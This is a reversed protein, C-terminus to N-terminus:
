KKKRWKYPEIFSGRWMGLKNNAAFIEDNVFDNTFYRYAVAWGSKVMEKNLNLDDAFCVAVIRKFRDIDTQKCNIKKGVILSELYNKSKLGCKYKKKNIECKQNIEPADIGYLRYKVREIYITDGDIIKVKEEDKQKDKKTIDSLYCILQFGGTKYYASKKGCKKGNSMVSYPCPCKGPYRSISDQIIEEPSKSYTKDFKFIIIIVFLSYLYVKLHLTNLNYFM